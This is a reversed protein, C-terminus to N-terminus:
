ALFLEIHLDSKKNATILFISGNLIEMACRLIQAGETRCRKRCHTPSWKLGLWEKIIRLQITFSLQLILIITSHLANKEQIKIRKTTDSQFELTTTQRFNWM